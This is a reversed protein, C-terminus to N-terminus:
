GGPVLRIVTLREKALIRSTKGCHDCDIKSGIELGQSGWGVGGEDEGAHARFDLPKRCFPCPVAHIPGQTAQLGAPPNPM